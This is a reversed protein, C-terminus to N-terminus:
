ELKLDDFIKQAKETMLKENEERQKTMREVKTSILKIAVELKANIEEEIKITKHKFEIFRYM